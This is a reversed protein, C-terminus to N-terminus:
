FKVSFSFNTVEYIDVRVEGELLTITINGPAYRHESFGKYGIKWRPFTNSDLFNSKRNIKQVKYVIGLGNESSITLICNKKNTMNIKQGYNDYNAIFTSNCSQDNYRKTPLTSFSNIINDSTTLGFENIIQDSKSSETTSLITNNESITSMDFLTPEEEFKLTTSEEKGNSTTFYSEDFYLESELTIEEIYGQFETTGTPAYYTECFRGYYNGKCKCKSCNRPDPYGENLCELENDKCVDSCYLNNIQKYDYFSPLWRGTLKYNEKDIPLVNIQSGEGAYPHLISSFDYPTTIYAGEIRYNYDELLEKKVIVYDDRDFRQHTHLFGLAHMTEHLVINEFECGNTLNVLQSIAFIPTYKFTNNVKETKYSKVVRGLSSACPGNKRYIYRITPEMLNDKGTQVFNLCTNENMYTLSINILNKRGITVEDTYYITKPWVWCNKPDGLVIPITLLFSIAIYYKM